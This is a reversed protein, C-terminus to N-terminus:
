YLVTMRQHQQHPHQHHHQNQHCQQQQHHLQQHQQQQHLQQQQQHHHHQQQHHTPVTTSTPPPTTENCPHFISPELCHFTLGSPFNEQTIVHSPNIFCYCFECDCDILVYRFEVAPCIVNEKANEKQYGIIDSRHQCICQNVTDNRCEQPFFVYFNCLNKSSFYKGWIYKEKVKTGM